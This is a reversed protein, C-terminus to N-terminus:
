RSGDKSEEKLRSKIDELMGQRSRTDAEIALRGRRRQIASWVSHGLVQPVATKTVYDDIGAGFFKNSFEECWSETTVVIPICEWRERLMQIQRLEWDQKLIEEDVVMVDFENCDEAVELLNTAEEVSYAQHIDCLPFQHRLPVQAVNLFRQDNTAFLVRM